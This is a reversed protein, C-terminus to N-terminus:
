LRIVDGHATKVNTDEPVFRYPVMSFSIHINLKTGTESRYM